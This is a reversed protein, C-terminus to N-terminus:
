VLMQMHVHVMMMWQLVMLTVHQIIQVVLLKMVDCVGDGDADALCNGDCDLGADAYTCSLNLHGAVMLTVHMTANDTCGAVEDNTFFASVLQVM